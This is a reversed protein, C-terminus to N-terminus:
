TTNGLSQLFFGRIWLRGSIRFWHIGRYSMFQIKSPSRVGDGHLGIPITRGWREQPLEPHERVYPHGRMGRWFGLAAGAPGRIRSVFESKRNAYLSEFFEHPWFVPHPTKAGRKTELEIFSMEATGKPWGLVNRMGRALNQVHKGSTGMSAFAEVGEAGSKLSKMAIQQIQPNQAKWIGM